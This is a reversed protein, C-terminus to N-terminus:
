LRRSGTVYAALAAQWAMGYAGKIAYGGSRGPGGPSKAVWTAHNDLTLKRRADPARM